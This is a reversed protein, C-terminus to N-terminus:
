WSSWCSEDESNSFSLSNTFLCCDLFRRNDYSNDNNMVEINYHNYIDDILLKDDDDNKNNHTLNM